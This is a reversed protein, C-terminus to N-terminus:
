DLSPQLDLPLTESYVQKSPPGALVEHLASKGEPTQRWAAYDDHDQTTAWTEVVLFHCPDADDVLAEIGLNGPWARTAALTESLYKAADARYDPNFRVEFHVIAPM